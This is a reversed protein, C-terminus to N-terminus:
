PVRGLGQFKWSKEVQAGMGRSFEMDVFFLSLENITIFNLRLQKYNCQLCLRVKESYVASAVREKM